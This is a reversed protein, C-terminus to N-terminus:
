FKITIKTGVDKTSEVAITWKYLSAIREVLSLGIGFSNEDRAEWEQYFRDFIKPINEAAIGIGTDEIAISKEDITIVISGWDHNYKIANSLLNGLLIETYERNAQVQLPKKCIINLSIHRLDLKEQSHKQLKECVEKIDVNESSDVNELTSLRILAQILGNMRDLEHISEDIGEDYNKKLRTLELSSKIVAIPTKLEHGANHVFQEMENMSKEVPSLTRDVFRSSIFYIWLSLLIAGCLYILIDLLVSERTMRSETFFVAGINKTIPTDIFFYRNENLEFTTGELSQLEQLLSSYLDSDKQPSFLIKGDQTSYLFFNEMQMRGRMWPRWWWQNMMGGRWMGGGPLTLWKWELIDQEWKINESIAKIIAQSQFALRSLEQKEYDFYKFSLFGIDLVVITVFISLSFLISLRRKQISLSHSPSM